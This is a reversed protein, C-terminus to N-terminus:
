EEQVRSEEIPTLIGLKILQKVNNNHDQWKNFIKQFEKEDFKNDKKANALYEAVLKDSEALKLIEVNFLQTFKAFSKHLKNTKM